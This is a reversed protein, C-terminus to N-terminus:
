NALQISYPQFQWGADKLDKITADIEATVSKNDQYTLVTRNTGSVYSKRSHSGESYPDSFWHPSEKM